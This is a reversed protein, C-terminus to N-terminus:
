FKTGCDPCFNPTAGEPEYGCVACIPEAEPRGAGCNPCFNSNNVNGCACTWSDDAASVKEEAYEFPINNEIAFQEAYSGPVVVVLLADFKRSGFAWEDIFVVSSPIYVTLHYAPNGYEDVWSWGTLAGEDIMLTGEPIHYIEKREIFSHGISLHRILRKDEKSFLVGDVWELTPHDPSVDIVAESDCDALANRGIVTTGNPISIYQFYNRRFAAEGITTVSEPITIYDLRDQNFAWAGIVELGESFTVETLENNNDFAYDGITKVSGPITVKKLDCGGFAYDGIRTVRNPITISQLSECSNFTFNEIVTVRNPINVKKLLSCNYFAEEGISTISNPLTVSELSECGYFAAADISTVGEPITIQQVGVYMWEKYEEYRWGPFCTEGMSTVKLGNIRVPITLKKSNGKYGRIQATGDDLVTYAWDGSFKVEEEAMAGVSMLLMALACLCAVWKKM